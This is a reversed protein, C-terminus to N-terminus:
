IRVLIINHDFILFAHFTSDINVMIHTSKYLVRVACKREKKKKWVKKNLFM